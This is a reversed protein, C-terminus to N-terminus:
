KMELYENIFNEYDETVKAKPAFGFLDQQHLQAADVVTSNRITTQFIPADVIATSIKETISKMDKNVLYRHNYRVILIGKIKIQPNSYKKIENVTSHLEIIGKSSFLAPMTTIIIEDAATFAMATLTGLSPPTDILIYNYESIISQISEKLRQEKGLRHILEPELASLVSDAPVLDFSEHKQIIDEIPDTQKLLEYTTALNDTVAGISQTLNGQPDLDIALVKYGARKLGVAMTNTTTTKAVGGKQNTIAIITAKM